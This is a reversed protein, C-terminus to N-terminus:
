VTGISNLKERIKASNIGLWACAVDFNSFAIANVPFKKLQQDLMSVNPFNEGNLIMAIKSINAKGGIGSYVEGLKNLDQPTTEFFVASRCDSITCAGPKINKDKLSEEERGFLESNSVKGRWKKIILRGDDVVLYSFPM